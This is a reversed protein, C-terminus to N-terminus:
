NNYNTKKFSNNKEKGFKNISKKENLENKLNLYNSNEVNKNKIKKIKLYEEETFDFSDEDDDNNGRLDDEKEKEKENEDDNYMKLSRDSLNRMIKEYKNDKDRSSTVSRGEDDEEIIDELSLKLKDLYLNSSNSLKSDELSCGCKSDLTQKKNKDGKKIIIKKIKKVKKKQKPKCKLNNKPILEIINYLCNNYQITPFRNDFIIIDNVVFQCKYKGSFINCPDILLIFYKLLKNYRFSYKKIEKKNNVDDDFYIIIDVKKAKYPYYLFYNNDIDKKLKKFAKYFIYNRFTNQIYIVKQKRQELHYNIFLIKKIKIVNLYIRMRKIILEIASKRKQNIHKIIIKKRINIRQLFGRIHKQIKIIAKISKKGFFSKDFNNIILKKKLLYGRVCSQIKIISDIKNYLSSHIDNIIYQAGYQFLPPFTEYKKKNKNQNNEILDISFNTFKQFNLVVENKLNNFELSNEFNYNFVSSLMKTGLNINYQNDNGYNFVPKTHSNNNLSIDNYSRQLIKKDTFTNNPNNKNTNKSKKYSKNDKSKSVKKGKSNNSLATQM